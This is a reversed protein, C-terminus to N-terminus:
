SNAWGNLSPCSKLIPAGATGREPNGIAAMFRQKIFVCDLPPKHTPAVESVQAVIM